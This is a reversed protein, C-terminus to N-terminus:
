RREAKAALRQKRSTRRGAAHVDVERDGALRDVRQQDDHEAEQDAHQRAHEADAAAEQGRRQQDEVADRRRDRDGRGRGLDGAGADRAHHDVHAAAPDVQLHAPHHDDAAQEAREDARRQEPQELRAALDIDHDAQEVDQHEAAIPASISM